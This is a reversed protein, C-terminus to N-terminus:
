SDDARNISSTDNSACVLLDAECPYTPVAGNAITLYSLVDNLGRKELNWKQINEDSAFSSCHEVIVAAARATTCYQLIEVNIHGGFAALRLGYVTVYAIYTQSCIAFVMVRRRLSWLNIPLLIRAYRKPSLMCLLQLKRMSQLTCHVTVVQIKSIVILLM